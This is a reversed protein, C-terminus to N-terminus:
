TVDRQGPAAHGPLSLARRLFGLEHWLLNEAAAEDSVRHTAGPLPLV